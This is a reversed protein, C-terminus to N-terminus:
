KQKSKRGSQDNKLKWLVSLHKLIKAMNEITLPVLQYVTDDNKKNGCKMIGNQTYCPTPAYDCSIERRPPEEESPLTKDVNVRIRTRAPM